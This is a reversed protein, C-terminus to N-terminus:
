RKFGSLVYEPSLPRGDHRLLMEDVRIGTGARLFRAFQGTANNEVAVLRGAPELRPGIGDAAFPWLDTFHLFNVREGEENLRDVAERVPGYSSGWGIFTTDARPSGFLTPPRMDRVAAELKRLRKEVMRVRNDPDEDEFHGSETHEDSCAVFVANPHGPLARPSIGTETITYRAYGDSLRDLEEKTLLAGRDIEVAEFHLDKRDVTRVSNALFTDILVIVPCQYKEALNFARWGADFCEEV